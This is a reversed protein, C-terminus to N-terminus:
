SSPGAYGVTQATAASSILTSILFALCMMALGFLFFMILLVAFSANTFLDFGAAQARLVCM